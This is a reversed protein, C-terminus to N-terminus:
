RFIMYFGPTKANEYAGIDIRSHLVREMGALDTAPAAVDAGKNFLPGHIDPVLNRAQWDEFFSGVDGFAVTENPAETLVGEEIVCNQLAAGLNESSSFGTHTPDASDKDPMSNNAFVTNVIRGGDTVEM